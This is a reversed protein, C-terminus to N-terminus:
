WLSEVEGVVDGFEGEARVVRVEEVGQVAGRGRGRVVEELVLVVHRDHGCDVRLAADAGGGAEEVRGRNKWGRGEVEFGVGVGVLVADDAM